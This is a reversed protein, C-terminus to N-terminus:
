KDHGRIVSISVVLIIISIIWLLLFQKNKSGLIIIPFIFFGILGAFRLWLAMLYTEEM